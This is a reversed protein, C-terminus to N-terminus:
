PATIASLKEYDNVNYSFIILSTPVLYILHAPSYCAHSRLYACLIKTSLLFQAPNAQGLTPILKSGNTYVPPSAFYKDAVQDATVTV